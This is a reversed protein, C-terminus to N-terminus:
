NRTITESLNLLVRAVATWAAQEASPHSSKEFQGVQILQTADATASRYHERSQNLHALMTRMEFGDPERSVALLYARNVKAEDTEGGESLLRDAYKRAAEVFTPDNLLAMAALPTNSRPRKATCEERSPADLARLTPHLFQRQWHVYVGRRWQQKDTDHKYVRKPFNLHRYYGGPQYPRVSRGGYDLVLLGSIALANDRISEAPLRFRSQRGFLQNAPDAERQSDTVMSSQRYTRSMLVTKILRKMDWGNAVLDIALADLLDPDSPLEGQGGFDDLSNSIGVGLFLYWIRNALVRATLGGIGKQPDTLWNALDLRTLRSDKELSGFFKPIAPNAIPGSDDLWNGRPLVRLERPEIAVTVMTPRASDQLRKLQSQLRKRETDGSKPAKEGSEANNEKPLAAILKNLRAEQARERKSLVTLEPPRKTPLGNSGVRFHQAEDVDAFFAAISYFDVMTFPDFKHDHCQCCGMTVGLWVNSFNRVRDAAYIALYEKPQVGGEHSTQLLRNYGTAIKQDLTADPLLDGALQERTFRDFPMNDNFADIVYDRYPSISHDQDGHYGVTDAYRVLDLWYVAMREGFRDSALLDDIVREVANANKDNLFAAVAKPSPPLGILDFYIRRILTSRDADESPPLKAQELQALVYHDIWNVPWSADAVKPPKSKAPRLYAWYPEYEAGAAIWQRLLKIEEASISKGSGEPPMREDADEATLRAILESEEVNGPVVASKKAAEEQDLRLEGERKNADPGHCAFCRDALIPRVHRNYSLTKTQGAATQSLAIQCVAIMAWYSWATTLKCGM